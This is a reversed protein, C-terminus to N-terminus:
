RMRVEPKGVQWHGTNVTGESSNRESEKENEAKMDGGQLAMGLWDNQM